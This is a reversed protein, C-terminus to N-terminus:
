GEVLAQEMKLAGNFDKNLDERGDNEEPANGNYTRLRDKTALTAVM